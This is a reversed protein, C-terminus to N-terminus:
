CTTYICQSIPVSGATCATPLCFLLSAYPLGGFSSSTAGPASYATCCASALTSNSLVFYFLVSSLFHFVTHLRFSTIALRWLCVPIRKCSSIWDSHNRYALRRDRFRDLGKVKESRFSRRMLRRALVGYPLSGSSPLTRISWPRWSVKSCLFRRCHSFPPLTSLRSRPSGLSRCQPHSKDIIPM